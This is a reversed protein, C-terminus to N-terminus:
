YNLFELYASGKWQTTNLAMSGDDTFVMWDAFLAGLDECIDQVGQRLNVLVFAYDFELNNGWNMCNQKIHLTKEPHMNKRLFEGLAQMSDFDNEPLVFDSNDESPVLDELRSGRRSYLTWNKERSKEGGLSSDLYEKAAQESIRGARFLGNFWGLIDADLLRLFITYTIDKDQANYTKPDPQLSIFASGKWASYIENKRQTCLKLTHECLQKRVFNLYQSQKIPSTIDGTPKEVQCVAKLKMKVLNELTDICSIENRDSLKSVSNSEEIMSGMLEFEEPEALLARIIQMIDNPLSGSFTLYHIKDYELKKLLEIENENYEDMPFSMKVGYYENDQGDLVFGYGLLLEESAKPGYNNFIESGKTISQHTIVRLVGETQDNNWEIKANPDHNTLDLVPVMPGLKQPKTLMTKARSELLSPSFRRTFYVSFAWIWDSWKCFSYDFYKSEFLLPFIQKYTVWLDNERENLSIPINTHQLHTREEMSWYLPTDFKTPLSNIYTHFKHSSDGRARLLFLFLQYRPSLEVYNKADRIGVDDMVDLFSIMAKHPIVMMTDGVKFDKNAFLGLGGGPQTSASITVGDIEFGGVKELWSQLEEASSRQRSEHRLLQGRAEELTSPISASNNIKRRKVPRDSDDM